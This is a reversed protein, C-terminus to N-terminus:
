SAISRKAAALRTLVTSDFVEDGVQVRLGGVVKPDVAVNLQLARGYIQALLAALRHTQGESLPAAAFVTAVWRGRRAAAMDSLLVLSSTLSRGRSHGVVRRIMTLTIPLVRGSLLREVLKVRQEAPVDGDSLAIRLDRDRVLVRSLEFVEGEVQELTGGTEAAILLATIGFSEIAEAIDEAASWRHAALQSVATIAREDAGALLRRVLAIKDNASRSPDTIARRLPGSGDLTAVFDLLQEGITAADAGAATLVPEFGAQVAAASAQSTGHM